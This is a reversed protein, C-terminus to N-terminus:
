PALKEQPVGYVPGYGLDKLNEDKFLEEAYYHGAIRYTPFTGIVLAYVQTTKEKKWVSAILHGNPRKTGKVDVTLGARSVCDEDPAQTVSLDPYTNMVKNYFIEAGIGELETTDCDQVGIKRNKTGKERNMQTRRKAVYQALRQEVENLTVWPFEKM